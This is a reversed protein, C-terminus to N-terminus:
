AIVKENLNDKESETKVKTDNMEPRFIFFNQYMFSLKFCQFESRRLIRM